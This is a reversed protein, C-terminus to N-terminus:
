EAPPPAPVGADADAAVEAITYVEIGIQSTVLTEPEVTSTEETVVPVARSVNIDVIRVQRKVRRLRQLFDVYDPWAGEVQMNLAIALYGERAQPVQPTIAVFDLGSANVADQLEMIVAPLEPSEPVENSLGLLRAETQASRSKIEQRRELLTQATAIDEESQAIEQDLTALKSFQPVILLFFVAASIVVFGVAIIIIKQMSNLKM